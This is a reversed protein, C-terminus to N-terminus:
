ADEAAAEKGSESAGVLRLEVWGGHLEELLLDAGHEDFAAVLTM